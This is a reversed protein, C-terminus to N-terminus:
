LGVTGTRNILTDLAQDIATLVRAAAQYAHQAAVLNVSEEDLSVSAEATQAHKSNAAAAESLGAQQGAARAASGITTVFTAWRADPSDPGHALQAIADAVSGDLLGAGAAGTAIGETGSPVVRLGRAAPLASDFEFFDLGSAGSPTQGARHATNVAGALAVAFSDYSAAAEAIAGGTGNGTAPALVSLAGAIRGGELGVAHGPQDAWELTPAASSDAMTEAGTLRVAGAVDGRVLANGGLYVTVTGDAEERATGGALSAITETLRARADILENAPAGANLASRISKNLAAVQAAADNLSAAMAEASSRTDTWQEELAARGSSLASALQGAEHLLVSAPGPEGPRNAVGQWAGWFSQLHASVGDPGPERLTAEIRDYAASRQTTYGASSATARVSADLLASGLRGIRDVSVGQGVRIGTDALGARAPAGIASQEVRQRTYGDTGVNAVNHGALNMAQQAASLGRYATGLAGFTSM